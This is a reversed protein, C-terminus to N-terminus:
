AWEYGFYRYSKDTGQDDTLAVCWAKPDSLNASSNSSPQATGRTLLVTASFGGGGSILVRGPVTTSDLVVPGSPDVFYTAVEKGVITVDAKTSSDHAKARQNLFVPIAIAALVGIIIMVVLLEILTFGGDVTGPGQALSLLM